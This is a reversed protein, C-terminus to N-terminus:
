SAGLKVRKKWDCTEEKREKRGNEVKEQRSIKGIGNM